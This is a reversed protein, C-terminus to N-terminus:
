RPRPDLRQLGLVRREELDQAADPRSQQSRCLRSDRWAASRPDTHIWCRVADGLSTLWVANMADEYRIGRVKLVVLVGTETDTSETWKNLLGGLTALGGSAVFMKLAKKPQPVLTRLLLLPM